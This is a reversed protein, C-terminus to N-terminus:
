GASPLGGVLFRGPQVSWSTLPLVQRTRIRLKSCHQCMIAEEHINISHLYTFFHSIQFSPGGQTSLLAQSQVSRGGM